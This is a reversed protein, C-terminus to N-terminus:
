LSASIRWDLDTISGTTRESLNHSAGSNWFISYGLPHFGCNTSARRPSVHRSIRPNALSESYVGGLCDDNPVWDSAAPGGLLAPWGVCASISMATPFYAPKRATPVSPCEIVMRTEKRAQVGSRAAAMTFAWM